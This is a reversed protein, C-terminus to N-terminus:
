LLCLYSVTNFNNCSSDFIIDFAATFEFM